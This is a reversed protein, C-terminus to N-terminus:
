LPRRWLHLNGHPRGEQAEDVGGWLAQVSDTARDEKTSGSVCRGAGWGCPPRSSVGTVYVETRM